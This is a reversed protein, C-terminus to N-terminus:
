HSALPIIYNPRYLHQQCLYMSGAHIKSRIEIYRFRRKFQIDPLVLFANPDYSFM